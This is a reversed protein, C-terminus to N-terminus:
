IVKPSRELIYGNGRVNQIKNKPLGLRLLKKKLRCMVPRLMKAADEKKVTYGLAIDIIETPTAVREPLDVLCAFIKNETNTLSINEKPNYVWRRERDFWLGPEIEVKIPAAIKKSHAGSRPPIHPIEVSEQDKM